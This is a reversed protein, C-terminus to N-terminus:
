MRVAGGSLAANRGPFLPSAAPYCRCRVSRDHGRIRTHHHDAGPQRAYPEGPPQTLQASGASGARGGDGDREDALLLVARVVADQEGLDEGPPVGGLHDGEGRRGPQGAGPDGADVPGRAGQLAGVARRDCVVRQDERGARVGYERGQAAQERGIGHGAPAFEGLAHVREAGHVVAQAQRLGYSPASARDDDAATEETDRGGARQGRAAGLHHQGLLALPEHLALEVRGRGPQDAPVERVEADLHVGLAPYAIHAADAARDARDLHGVSVGEVGVEDDEGAPHVRAHAEGLVRPEGHM